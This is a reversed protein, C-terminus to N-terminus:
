SQNKKSTYFSEQNIKSYVKMKIKNLVVLTYARLLDISGNISMIIRKASSHPIFLYKQNPHPYEKINSEGAIKPPWKLSHPISFMQSHNVNTPTIISMQNIDSTKHLSYSNRESKLQVQKKDPFNDIAKPLLFLVTKITISM